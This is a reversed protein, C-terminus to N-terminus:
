GDRDSRDELGSGEVAAQLDDRVLADGIRARHAARGVLQALVPATAAQFLVVLLVKLADAATGLLAAGGGLLVLGLVQLKTAAQLRSAVDPLRLLGVAALVALLSGSLLLVSAAIEVASM